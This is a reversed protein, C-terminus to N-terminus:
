ASRQRLNKRYSRPSVGVSRRFVRSFYLPDSYGCQHAVSDITDDGSELLSRARRIRPERHYNTPSI